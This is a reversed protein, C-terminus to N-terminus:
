FRKLENLIQESDYPKVVYGKAGQEDGWMKDAEEGKSSVLIIPIHKTDANKTIKRCAQFGNLPQMIVDLLIADPLESSAKDIAEQGNTATVVEYGADTCIKKMNELDTVSDDVCLVKKAMKM